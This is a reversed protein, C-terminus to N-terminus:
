RAISHGCKPCKWVPTIHCPGTMSFTQGNNAAPDGFFDPVGMRPTNTLATSRVMDGKCKKCQPFTKM